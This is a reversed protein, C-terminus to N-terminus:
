SEQKISHIAENNHVEVLTDLWALVTDVSLYRGSIDPVDHVTAYLNPDFTLVDVELLSDAGEM